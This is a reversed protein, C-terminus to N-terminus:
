RLPSSLSAKLGKRKKGSMDAAVPSRALCVEKFHPVDEFAICFTKGQGSMDMMNMRSKVENPFDDNATRCKGSQRGDRLWTRATARALWRRLPCNKKESYFTTHLFADDARTADTTAQPLMPFSAHFQHLFHSPEEGRREERRGGEKRRRESRRRERCDRSCVRIWLLFVRTVVLSQLKLSELCGEESHAKPLIVAGVSEARSPM